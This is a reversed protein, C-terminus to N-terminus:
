FTKNVVLSFELENPIASCRLIYKNNSAEAGGARNPRGAGAKTLCDITAADDFYGLAMLYKGFITQVSDIYQQEEVTVKGTSHDFVSTGQGSSVIGEKTDLGSLTVVKGGGESLRCTPTGADSWECTAEAPLIARMAKAQTQQTANQASAPVIAVLSLLLAWICAERMVAM